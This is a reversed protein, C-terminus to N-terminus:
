SAARNLLKAWGALMEGLLLRVFKAPVYHALIAGRTLEGASLRTDRLCSISLALALCTSDKETSSSLFLTGAETM